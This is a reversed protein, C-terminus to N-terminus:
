RKTANRPLQGVGKRTILVWISVRRSRGVFIGGNDIEETVVNVISRILQARPLNLLKNEHKGNDGAFARKSCARHPDGTAAPGM